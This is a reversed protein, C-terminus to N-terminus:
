QSMSQGQFETYSLLIDIQEQQSLKTFCPHQRVGLLAFKTSKLNSTFGTAVPLSCGTALVSARSQAKVFRGAGSGSQVTQVPYSSMTDVAPNEATSCWVSSVGTSMLRKWVVKKLAPLHLFESIHCLTVLVSWWPSQSYGFTSPIGHEKYTTKLWDNLDIGTSSKLLDSIVCYVNQPCKMSKEELGCGRPIFKILRQEYRNVVAQM